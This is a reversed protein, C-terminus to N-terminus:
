KIFFALIEDKNKSPKVKSRLWYLKKCAREEPNEPTSAFMNINNTIVMEIAARDFILLFFYGGTLITIREKKDRSNLPYIAVVLFHAILCDTIIM